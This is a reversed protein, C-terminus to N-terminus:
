GSRNYKGQFDLNHITLVTKIPRYAEIWHYKERLLFPIMATHYDNVHLIDPIFDVREMMEIIAQQFFAFREGDDYYVYLQDRNFYYLNDIFYYRVDGLKLTKIGCYQSRWGVKVEFNLVDEVKEKYSENMKKFYPMVVAVEVGEKALAKPLAGAVDGLGGTKFFPACESAAFLIKM